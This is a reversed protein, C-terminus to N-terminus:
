CGCNWAKGGRGNIREALAAADAASRNCHIAVAFGNAALDEAIAAGIRRTSGTVLATKNLNQM